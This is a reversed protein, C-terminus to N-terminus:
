EDRTILITVDGQVHEANLVRQAAERLRQEDVLRQYAEMVEIDIM